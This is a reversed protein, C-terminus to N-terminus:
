SGRRADIRQRAGTLAGGLWRGLAALAEKTYPLGTRIEFEEFKLQRKALSKQLEERLASPGCFAVRATGDRMVTTIDSASLRGKTATDHLHLTVRDLRAAANQVESLHPANEAGRFTYFLDIPPGDRPTDELWALFPTIGVGGAVWVQHQTGKPRTFHGYPGQVHATMGPRLQQALRNTYDGLNAVSLRLTGDERRASSITFPHTEALGPAEFTFFAFQGARHGIPRADPTLTIVTAVGSTSVDRVTYARGRRWSRPLLCYIYAAVGIVCFALVYLGLPDLNSFPKLVLAFHLAGLTFCVGMIRHTWYWFRYPIFTLLTLGILIMLGNLSQEGLSEGFDSLATGKGLAKIEAGINDHLLVAALAGIGLWKHLVYARDMPGFIPEVIAARTAIVHSIAMAILAAAGIYQSILASRPGTLPMFLFALGGLALAVVFLGRIM